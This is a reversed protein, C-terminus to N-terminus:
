NKDKIHTRLFLIEFRDNKKKRLKNEKKKSRQFYLYAIIKYYGFIIVKLRPFEFVYTVNTYIPLMTVIAGYKTKSTKRRKESQLNQKM